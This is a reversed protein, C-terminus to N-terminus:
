GAETAPKSNYHVALGVAAWFEVAQHRSLEPVARCAEAATTFLEAYQRQETSPSSAVARDRATILTTYVDM